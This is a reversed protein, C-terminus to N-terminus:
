AVEKAYDAHKTKMHRQLDQFTRSCCPCVGHGVRNKIRTVVGRQASLQRETAERLERQRKVEDDREAIRQALRDREARLKEAESQASFYQRHGNPCYWWTHDERRKTVWHQPAAFSLGCGEHCCTIAESQVFMM